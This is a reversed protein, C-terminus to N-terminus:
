QKVIQKVKSEQNSLTYKMLYKGRRLTSLNIKTSNANVQYTAVPRGLISFFTVSQIKINTDEVKLYLNNKTPNPYAVLVDNNKMSQAKSIGSFMLFFGFLLLYIQKKM